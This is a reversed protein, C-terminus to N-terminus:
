SQSFRPRPGNLLIRGHVVVVANEIDFFPRPVHRLSPLATCVCGDAAARKVKGLTQNKIIQLRGYSRGIVLGTLEGDLAARNLGRGQCDM